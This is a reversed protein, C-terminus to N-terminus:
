LIRLIHGPLEGLKRLPRNSFVQSCTSVTDYFYLWKDYSIFRFKTSYFNKEIFDIIIFKMKTLNWKKCSNIQLKPQKEYNKPRLNPVVLIIKKQRNETWIIKIVYKKSPNIQNKVHFWVVNMQSTLLLYLHSQVM